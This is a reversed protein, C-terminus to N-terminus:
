GESVEPTSDSDQEFPGNVEQEMVESFRSLAAEGGAADWAPRMFPRPPVHGVQKNGRKIIHGFEVLHAYRTPISVLVLGKHKGKTIVKRPARINRMPGVVGVVSAGRTGNRGRNKIVVGISKKLVGTDEKCRAKAEKAVPALAARTARKLSRERVKKELKKLNSNILEYGRINTVIM